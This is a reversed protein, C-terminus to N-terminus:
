RHPFHVSLLNKKRFYSKKKKKQLEVHASKTQSIKGRSYNIWRLIIVFLHRSILGAGRPAPTEPRTRRGRAALALRCSGRLSGRLCGRLSGRLSGGFSCNPFFSPFRTPFCSSFRDSFAPSSSFDQSPQLSEGEPRRQGGNVNAESCPPGGQSGRGGEGLLHSSLPSSNVETVAPIHSVIGQPCQFDM